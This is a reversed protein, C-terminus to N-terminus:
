DADGNELLPPTAGQADVEFGQADILTVEEEATREPSALGGRQALSYFTDYSLGNDKVVQWLAALDQASMAGELLNEPPNVIVQKEDLGKMMAINRLGRELMACSMQAVSQLNATESKYRLARAEGSEQARDGQDFLRAGAQAAADRNMEIAEKHKEIGVGSPGVYKLDPAVGDQESTMQHVVGAGVLEPAPGNLAVLTEQGSMFLQLRYDASLQYMALAARAVGILPPTQIDAGMDKASAVAFPVRELFGGGTKTPTIDVEPAEGVYETQVYRTGDMALVRYRNVQKWQFGDREMGSEDLVYFDKDWNIISAAGYVALYPEGQGDVPADALIGARGTVLLARTIRRHMDVLTMEGGDASEHLYQMAEPMEISIETGHVIGIMAGVSPGMIDPFQARTMYSQYDKRGYVTALDYGGPVPLYEAGEGKMEREGQYARDCLNWEDVRSQTYSPHTTKVDGNPM